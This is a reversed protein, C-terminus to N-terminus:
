MAKDGLRHLSGIPRSSHKLHKFLKKNTCQSKRFMKSFWTFVKHETKKETFHTYYLMNGM